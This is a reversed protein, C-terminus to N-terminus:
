SLVNGAELIPLVTAFLIFGVFASLVVILMPEILAAVRTASTNVQQEYDASLRELMEELKGSQQGVTFIQVVVPPFVSKEAEMAVGIDRGAEVASRLRDLGERLVVNPCTRGAIEMAKLFVIGSSMLTGVVFAVRGIAQKQLMEGLLPLRLLFKHWLYRGRTTRILALFGVVIAAVVMAAVAGYNVLTESIVRLVRTPWPLAKGMDLLNELLMPVVFTMLFVSVTISVLLVFSPYILANLVQDKMRSSKDLFTALQDLVGDLNGSTEGVEVMHVALHDFVEPQDSMAEAVSSGSAVRDRLLLLSNRFGGRHQAVLTDIAELVPIGASLLTALERIATGTKSRFRRRQLFNLRLWAPKERDATIEHVVLGRTRLQDRAQRPTDAAISGKMPTSDPRLATYTFVPM